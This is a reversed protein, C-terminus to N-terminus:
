RWGGGERGAEDGGDREEEREEERGRGGQRTIYKIEGQM